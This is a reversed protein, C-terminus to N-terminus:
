RSPRSRRRRKTACACSAVDAGSLGDRPATKLAM